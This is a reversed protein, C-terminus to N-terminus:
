RNFSQVVGRLCRLARGLSESVSAARDLGWGGDPNLVFEMMRSTYAPGVTRGSGPRPVLDERIERRRSHRAIHVITDKPSPLREPDVPIESAGVGLFRAIGRRDALLWAEVERVAVRFCIYPAPAPLWTRCLVPACTAEENLDVIVVWPARTAAANYGPIRQRLHEKGLGGHIPGAVAGVHHLLRRLVAEDVQGEVAGSVYPPGSPHVSM